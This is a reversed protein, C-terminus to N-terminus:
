SIRMMNIQFEVSLEMIFFSVMLSVNPSVPGFFNATRSPSLSAPLQEGRAAEFIKSHCQERNEVFKRLNIFMTPEVTRVSRGTPYHVRLTTGLKPLIETFNRENEATDAGIKALFYANQLM